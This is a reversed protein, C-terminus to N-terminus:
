DNSNGISNARKSTEVVFSEIFLKYADPCLKYGKGEPSHPLTRRLFMNEIHFYVVYFLVAREFNQNATNPSVTPMSPTNTAKWDSKVM